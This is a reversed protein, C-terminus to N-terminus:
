SFLSQLFFLFPKSSILVIPGELHESSVRVVSESSEHYFLLLLDVALSSSLEATKREINFISGICVWEFSNGYELMLVM